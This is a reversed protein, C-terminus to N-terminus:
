LLMSFPIQFYIGNMLCVAVNSSHRCSSCPVCNVWTVDSGTDVQVYFQQPPTGLSIQTYYLRPLFFFVKILKFTMDVNSSQHYLLM